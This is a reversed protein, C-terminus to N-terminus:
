AITLENSGYQLLDILLNGNIKLENEIIKLEYLTDIETIYDTVAPYIKDGYTKGDFITERKVIDIYGNPHYAKPFVQRPLNTYNKVGEFDEFFGECFGRDNIKFFKYPSEPLEHMSRMSTIEEQIKFYKKIHSGMIIPNRLPTTPRILAVEGVSVKSFFHELYQYDTSKDSAYKKPRLFPVKAGYKEAVDAIERDDTSIFVDGIEECFKCAAISYIILPYGCLKRINKNPIGKSGGRAPILAVIKKM